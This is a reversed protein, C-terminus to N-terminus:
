LVKHTGVLSSVILQSQSMVGTSFLLSLAILSTPLLIPFTWKIRFVYNKDYLEVRTNADLKTALLSLEDKITKM